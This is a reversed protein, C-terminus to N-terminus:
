GMIIEPSLAKLNCLQGAGPRDAMAKGGQEVINRLIALRKEWRRL